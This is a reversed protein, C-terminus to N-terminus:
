AAQEAKSALGAHPVTGADEAVIIEDPLTVVLRGGVIDVTPV